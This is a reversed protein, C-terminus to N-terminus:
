TYNQESNLSMIAVACLISSVAKTLINHHSCLSKILRRSEPTPFIRNFITPKWITTWYTACLSFRLFNSFSTLSSRRLVMEPIARLNRAEYPIHCRIRLSSKFMHCIEAFYTGRNSVSPCFWNKVALFPQPRVDDKSAGNAEHLKRNRRFIFKWGRPRRKWFAGSIWSYISVTRFRLGLIWSWCHNWSHYVRRIRWMVGFFVVKFLFVVVLPLCINGKPNLWWIRTVDEYTSM